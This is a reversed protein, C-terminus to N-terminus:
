QGLHQSERLGNLPRGHRGLGAPVLTWRRFTGTIRFCGGDDRADPLQGPASVRMSMRVSCADGVRDSGVTERKVVPLNDELGHESGHVDETPVQRQLRVFDGAVRPQKGEGIGERTTDKETQGQTVQNGLRHVPLLGKRGIPTHQSSVQQDEKHLLYGKIRVLNQVFHLPIPVTVRMLVAFRGSSSSGGVVISAGENEQAGEADVRDEFHHGETEGIGKGIGSEEGEANSEMLGGFGDSEEDSEDFGAHGAVLNDLVKGNEAGHTRQADAEAHSDVFVSRREDVAENQCEDRSGKDVDPRGFDNGFFPLRRVVLPGLKPCEHRPNSTNKSDRLVRTLKMTM